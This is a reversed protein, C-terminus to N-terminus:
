ANEIGEEEQLLAVLRTIEKDLETGGQYEIVEAQIKNPADLGFLKARREMIRLSTDIARLDGGVAKEWSAYQLRDLREAELIRMDDVAETVNRKLARQVIRWAHTRNNLNMEIAIQDFTYGNRRLEIAQIERDADEPELPSTM